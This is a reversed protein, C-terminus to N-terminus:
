GVPPSGSPPSKPHTHTGCIEPLAATGGVVWLVFPTTSPVTMTASLEVISEELVLLAGQRIAAQLVARLWRSRRSVGELM